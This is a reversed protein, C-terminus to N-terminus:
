FSNWIIQQITEARECLTYIHNQGTTERNNCMYLDSIYLLSAHLQHSQEHLSM